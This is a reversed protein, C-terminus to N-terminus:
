RVRFEKPDIVNQPVNPLDNERILIIRDLLVRNPKTSGKVFGPGQAKISLYLIYDNEDGPALVCELKHQILWSTHAFTLCDHTATIKGIKYFHFKEDQVVNEAPIQISIYQKNVTAVRDYFGMALKTTINDENDTVALAKGGAADPDDIVASGLPKLLLPKFNIFNFEKATKCNEFEPAPLPPTMQATQILGELTPLERKFNDDGPNGARMYTQLFLPHNAKLRAIVKQVDGGKLRHWRGLHVKDFLVRDLKVHRKLVPDGVAAEAEDLLEDSKAFFDDDLDTRGFLPCSALNITIENNRKMLYYLLEKMFPKAAGYYATMFREIEKDMDLDVSNMYRMIMWYRLQMFAMCSANNDVFLAEVGLKRYLAFNQTIAEHFDSLEPDDIIFNRYLACYDWVSIHEAAKKWRILHNLAKKNNPHTLPRPTDRIGNTWESGGSAWRVYVNDRAKIGRTPPELTSNYAFMQVRVEPYDDAIAAAIENTFEIVVGTYGGYEKAKETCKACHCYTHNDNQSIEYLWPPMTGAKAAKKRDEKIAEKLKAIFHERVKRNTPCIQGPGSGSTAKPREGKENLAFCEPDTLNHSYHYYTHTFSPWGYVPDLGWAIQAEDLPCDIIYNVRNRIMFDNRPGCIEARVAKPLSLHYISMHRLKFSPRGSYKLNVPWDFIQNEPIYTYFEAAFVIGYRRELFEFAGYLTGRPSGGIIVLHSSDIAQVLWQEREFSSVDIGQSKAYGTEGVYIVPGSVEKSEKQIAIAKGTAKGIHLSLEEAAKVCGKRAQEPIIITQASLRGFPLLLSILIFSTKIIQRMNDKAGHRFVLNM